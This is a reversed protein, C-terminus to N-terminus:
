QSLWSPPLNKMIEIKDFAKSKRPGVRLAWDVMRQVGEELSTKAKAGFIQEGKQHSSYAHQVEQRADGHVVQCPMNMAKAVVEALYNITYPKDAGM